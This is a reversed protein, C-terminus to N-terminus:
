ARVIDRRPPEAATTAVHVEGLDLSPLINLHKCQRQCEGREHLLTSVVMLLAAERDGFRVLQSNRLPPTIM